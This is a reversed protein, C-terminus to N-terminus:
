NLFKLIKLPLDGRSLEQLDNLSEPRIFLIWQPFLTSHKTLIRIWAGVHSPSNCGIAGDVILPLQPKLSAALTTRLIMMMRMREGGDLLPFLNGKGTEPNPIRFFYEKDYTIEWKGGAWDKDLSDNAIINFNKLFSEDFVNKNKTYSQIYKADNPPYIGMERYTFYRLAKLTENLSEGTDDIWSGGSVQKQITFTEDTCGTQSRILRYVNDDHNLEVCVSVNKNPTNTWDDPIEKYLCWMIASYFSFHSGSYNIFVIKDAEDLSLIHKGELKHWNQLEIKQIIM